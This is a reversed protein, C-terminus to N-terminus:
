IRASKPAKEAMEPRKEAFIRDAIVSYVTEVHKEDQQKRKARARMGM